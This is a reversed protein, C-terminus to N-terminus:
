PWCCHKNLVPNRDNFIVIISLYFISFQRFSTVIISRLQLKQCQHQIKVLREVLTEWLKLDCEKGCSGLNEWNEEWKRCDNQLKKDNYLIWWWYNRIQKLKRRKYKFCRRRPDLAERKFILVKYWQRSLERQLYKSNLTCSLIYWHLIIM